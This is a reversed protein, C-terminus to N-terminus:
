IDKFIRRMDLRLASIEDSALGYRRTSSGLHLEPSTSSGLSCGALYSLGMLCFTCSWSLFLVRGPTPNWKEKNEALSRLHFLILRVLLFSCCVKAVWRERLDVALSLEKTFSVLSLASRVLRRKKLTEVFLNLKLKCSGPFWCWPRFQKDPPLSVRGRQFLSMLVPLCSPLWLFNNFLDPCM